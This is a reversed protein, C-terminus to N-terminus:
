RRSGTRRAESRARWRQRVLTGAAGIASGALSVLIGSLLPHGTASRLDPVSYDTAPLTLDDIGIIPAATETSTGTFQILTTGSGAQRDGNLIVPHSHVQGIVVRATCTDPVFWADAGDSIPSPIAVLDTPFRGDNSATAISRLNSACGVEGLGGKSAGLSSHRLRLAMTLSVEQKSGAAGAGFAIAISTATSSDRDFWPADITSAPGGGRAVAFGGSSGAPLLNPAPAVRRSNVQRVPENPDLVALDGSSTGHQQAGTVIGAVDFAAAGSGVLAISLNANDPVPFDLDVLVQRDISGLGVTSRRVTMKMSRIPADAFVTLGGASSPQVSEAPQKPATAIAGGLFLATLGAFVALQALFANRLLRRVVRSVGSSLHAVGLFSVVPILVFIVWGVATLDTNEDFTNLSSWVVGSVSGAVAISVPLFSGPPRCLWALRDRPRV